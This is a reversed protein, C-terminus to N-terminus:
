VAPLGVAARPLGASLLCGGGAADELAEVLPVVRLAGVVLGLLIGREGPFVVLVSALFGGATADGVAAALVLFGAPGDLGVTPLPISLSISM